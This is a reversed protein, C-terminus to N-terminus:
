VAEGAAGTGLTDYWDRKYDAVMRAATVRPGLQVWGTRIRDAWAPRDGHFTPVIDDAFLDHLASAEAADRDEITAIGKDGVDFTPIDWGNGPFSWEAWWGDRISCNLGGNLAAKEGSTGCAEQPRVPNNLWVDCGGYLLQALRVDYGPVFAFRGKAAKSKSFKVVEALVAQGPVDAPHAKGAFIFQVPQQTDALLAELREPESLLLAARKYTAFRRAFGVTLADPDLGKTGWDAALGDVLKARLGDRMAWLSADDIKKSKKWAAASGDAWNGGLHDDFFDQAEPAIWTKSHIGNTVSGISAGEPLSGFLKQSVRGHLESVGNIKGASTLAFAAMNFETHPKPKAGKKAPARDSPLDGLAFLDKAKFGTTSAVQQLFPMILSKHFRDIGAPVPTHTTFLIRDRIAARATELDEGLGAREALMELLLFGAHGENLHMVRPHIGLARLARLGGVGLLWEQDIRKQRDGGYLRDCVDWAWDDNGEVRSDLVYLKIRGVRCEWVSARIPGRPTDVRVVVGTDTLGLDAPQYTNYDVSQKGAKVGQAFYGHAYFLGVGVLPTKLDSAAKLHDGALIGLGGSYQPLMESIGFEPSFYAIEPTSSAQAELAAVKEGAALLDARDRPLQKKTVEAVAQAPPTHMPDGTYRVLVDRLDSEWTWAYNSAVRQLADLPDIPM